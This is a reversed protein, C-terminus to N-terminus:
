FVNPIHTVKNVAESVNELETSENEKDASDAKNEHCRKVRTYVQELVMHQALQNRSTKLFVMSSKDM